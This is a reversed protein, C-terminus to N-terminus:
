PAAEPETSSAGVAPLERHRRLAARPISRLACGIGRANTILFDRFALLDHGLTKELLPVPRHVVFPVPQDRRALKQRFHEKRQELFHSRQM